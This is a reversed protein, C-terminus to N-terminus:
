DKLYFVSDTTRDHPWVVFYARTNYICSVAVAVIMIGIGLNRAVPNLPFVRLWEHLLYAIGATAFLFLLPVVISLPVPGGLAILLAGIAFFYGLLRPRYSKIHRTYFYIGLVCMVLTFIDLLPTRSLWIQPYEPGRIFLHVLVAGLERVIHLPKSFTAPLGLWLRISAPKRVFDLVLLPLWIVALLVTLAGQWWLKLSRWGSVIEHRQLISNLLVFWVLGPTYLLIGWIIISGYYVKKKSNQKQMLAHILLLLPLACLYLSDTSGLRSAHLTWSATAFLLTGLLASRTNHWRCVLWAFSIVAVIGLLASPLRAVLADNQPHLKFSFLRLVKLPLYLPNLRIDHWGPTNVAISHESASIGNVLSDLRYGFLAVLVGAGLLILALAKWHKKLYSQVINM